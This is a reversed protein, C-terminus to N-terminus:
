KKFPQNKKKKKDILHVGLKQLGFDFGSQKKKSKYTYSLTKM